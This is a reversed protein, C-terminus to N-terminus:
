FFFASVTHNFFYPPTIVRMKFDNKFHHGTTLDMFQFIRQAWFFQGSFDQTADVPHSSPLPWVLTNSCIVIGLKGMNSFESSVTVLKESICPGSSWNHCHLPGGWPTTFFLWAFDLFCGPSSELLLLHELFHHWLFALTHAFVTIRFTTWVCMTGGYISKMCKYRTALSSRLCLATASGRFMWRHHLCNVWRSAQAEFYIDGKTSPKQASTSCWSSHFWLTIHGNLWTM